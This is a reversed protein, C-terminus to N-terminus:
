EVAEIVIFSDGISPVLYRWKQGVLVEQCYAVFAYVGAREMM